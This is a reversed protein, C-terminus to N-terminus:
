SSSRSLSIRYFKQFYDFVPVNKFGDFDRMEEISMWMCNDVEGSIKGDTMHSLDFEEPTSYEFVHYKASYHSTVLTRAGEFRICPDMCDIGTEELCERRMAAELDGTKREEANLSGKPFGLRTRKGDNRVTVYRYGDKDEDTIRFPPFSHEPLLKESGEGGEKFRFLDTGVNYTVCLYRKTKTCCIAAMVKDELVRVNRRRSFSMRKKEKKKRKREKKKAHKKEKQKNPSLLFHSSKIQLCTRFFFDIM